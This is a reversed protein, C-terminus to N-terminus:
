LQEVLFPQMPTGSLETQVEDEIETPLVHQWQMDSAKARLTSYPDAVSQSIVM